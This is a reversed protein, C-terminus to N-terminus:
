SRNHHDRGRNIRERASQHLSVAGATAVAAHAFRFIFLVSALALALWMHAAAVYGVIFLLMFAEVWARAVGVYLRTLPSM